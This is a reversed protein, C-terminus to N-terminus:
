LAMFGPKIVKEKYIRVQERPAGYSLDTMYLSEQKPISDMKGDFRVIEDRFPRIMQSHCSNCGERIYLDRGELELPSYPKVAAINPVNSKVSLTPIIEVAGGIALTVFAGISLVTPMREIWLHVPEGDKRDNGIVALAPAEAPVNKEFVGKRVTKFVNVVM